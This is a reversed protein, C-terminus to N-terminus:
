RGSVPGALLYDSIYDSGFGPDGSPAERADFHEVRLVARGVSGLMEVYREVPRRYYPVEGVAGGDLVLRRIHV